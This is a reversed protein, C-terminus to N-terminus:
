IGKIHPPVASGVNNSRNRLLNEFERSNWRRHRFILAIVLVGFLLQRGIDMLLWDYGFSNWWTMLWYAVSFKIFIGFINGSVAYYWYTFVFAVLAIVLPFAYGFLLYTEGVAGLADSHYGESGPNYIDRLRHSIQRSDEFVAGPIYGDITSKLENWLTVAEGYEPNAFMEASFDLYGARASAFGINALFEDADGEMDSMNELVEQVSELSITMGYTDRIQRQYTGYSFSSIGILALILILIFQKFGFQIKRNLISFLFLTGLVFLMLFSRSGNLVSIIVYAVMYVMFIHRYREPIDKNSLVLMVFLIVMSIPFFFGVYNLLAQLSAENTQVSVMQFVLAMLCYIFIRNINENVTKSLDIASLRAKEMREKTDPRVVKHAFLIGAIAALLSIFVVWVYNNFIEHNVVIKRSLVIENDPFLTLTLFRLHWFLVYILIFIDLLPIRLSRNLRMAVLLSLAMLLVVFSAYVDVFPNDGNMTLYIMFVPVAIVLLQLLADLSVSKNVSRLISM